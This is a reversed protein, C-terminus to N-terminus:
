MHSHWRLFGLRPPHVIFTVKSQSMSGKPGLACTRWCKHTTHNQM